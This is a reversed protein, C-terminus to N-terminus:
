CEGPYAGLMFLGKLTIKRDNAPDAACCDTNSM